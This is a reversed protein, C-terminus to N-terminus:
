DMGGCFTNSANEIFTTGISKNTRNQKTNKKVKTLRAVSNSFECNSVFTDIWSFNIVKGKRESKYAYM